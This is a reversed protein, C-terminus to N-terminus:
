LNGVSIFERLQHHRLFETWDVEEVHLNRYTSNECIWNIKRHCNKHCVVRCDRCQYAQCNSFNGGIRKNCISCIVRGRSKSAVLIHALHVHLKKGSQMLSVVAPEAAVGPPISYYRPGDEDNGILELILESQGAPKSSSNYAIQTPPSHEQWSIPSAPEDSSRIFLQQQQEHHLQGIQELQGDSGKRGYGAIPVGGTAIGYRTQSQDRSPPVSFAAEELHPQEYDDLSKARKSHMGPLLRVTGTLRTRIQEFFNKRQKSGAGRGNARRDRERARREIEIGTEEADTTPKLAMPVKFIEMAPHHGERDNEMQQQKEKVENGRMTEHENEDPQMAKQQQQEELMPQQQQEDDRENRLPAEGRQIYRRRSDRARAGRVFGGEGGNGGNMPPTEPASRKREPRETTQFQFLANTDSTTKRIEKVNIITSSPHADAPEHSARASSPMLFLKGADISITASKPPPPSIRNQEALQEREQQQQQQEREDTVNYIYHQKQRQLKRSGGMSSRGLSRSAMSGQKSRDFGEPPPPSPQHHNNNSSPTRKRKNQAYEGALIPSQNEYPLPATPRDIQQRHHFSCNMLLVGYSPHQQNDKATREKGMESPRGQLPLRIVGEGTQSAMITQRLENLGLIAMGLFRREKVTNNNYMPMNAADDEMETFMEFLLEGSSPSIRLEFCAEDPHWYVRRTNGDGGGIPHQKQQLQQLNNNNCVFLHAKSSLFRESSPEDLEICVFPRENAVVNLAPLEYAELLQIQLCNSFYLEAMTPTKSRQKEVPFRPSTAPTQFQAASNPPYLEQLFTLNRYEASLRARSARASTETDPYLLEGLSFNLVAGIICKRLMEELEATTPGEESGRTTIGAAGDSKVEVIEMQIDPRDEFCSIIFLETNISALRTEIDGILENVRVDYVRCAPCELTPVKRRQQQQQQHNFYTQTPAQTRSPGSSNPDMAVSIRMCIPGNRTHMQCVHARFSLHNGPTRNAQIQAQQFASFIASKRPMEISDFHIDPQWEKRLRRSAENLSKAVFKALSTGLRQERTVANEEQGWILWNSLENLFRKNLDHEETGFEDVCVSPVIGAATTHQHRNNYTLIFFYCLVAVIFWSILLLLIGDM